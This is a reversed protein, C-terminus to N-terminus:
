AGVGMRSLLRDRRILQHYLAAGIHTALLVLLLRGMLGHALRPALESFDPLATGSVLAPIAGSLVLTAIGSAGLILVLLYLLAHVARAAWEQAAPMGTVPRPRRDGWIWWGIRVLTLLLALSGLTAHIPLIMRKLGPDAANVMVLGGILAAIILAASTWHIAIAVSGYRRTTSKLSM